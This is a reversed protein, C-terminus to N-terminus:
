LVRTRDAVFVLWTVSVIRCEVENGPHSIIHFLGKMPVGLMLLDYFSISREFFGEPNLLGNLVINGEKM